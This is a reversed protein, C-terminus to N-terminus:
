IKWSMRPIESRRPSRNLLPGHWTCVWSRSHSPRTTRSHVAHSAAHPPPHRPTPRHTAPRPATPPSHHRLTPGHVHSRRDDELVRPPGPGVVLHVRVGEAEGPEGLREPELRDPAHLVVEGVVRHARVHHLEEGVHRAAGLPDLEP